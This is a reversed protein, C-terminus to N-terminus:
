YLLRITTEQKALSRPAEFRLPQSRGLCLNISVAADKVQTASFKGRSSLSIVLSGRLWKCKKKPLPSEKGTLRIYKVTGFIRSSKLASVDRAEPEVVAELVLANLSCTAVEQVSV